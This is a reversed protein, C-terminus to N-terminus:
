KPVVVELRQSVYALEVGFDALSEATEPVTERRLVGRYVLVAAILPTSGEPRAPITITVVDPGDIEESVSIPVLAWPGSESESVAALTSNIITFGEAKVNLSATCSEGSVHPDCVLPGAGDPTEIMVSAGQFRPKDTPVGSACFTQRDFEVCQQGDIADAIAAAESNAPIIDFGSSGSGGCGSVSWLLALILGTASVRSLFTHREGNMDIAM